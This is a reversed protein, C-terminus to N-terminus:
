KKQAIIILRESNEDDFSSLNIDGFTDIVEFGSKNLLDMFENQCITQVMERFKYEHGGDQFNIYKVIHTGNFVRSIHFDIGEVTKVEEKVLNRIVYNINMFDIILLGKDVLMKNASSLVKNNDSYDEFYGFSTFLNFVVDFKEDQYEERMDHVDFSLTDNEFPKAVAISQKSLDLGTVNLGHKNLFISHRGKGCALDLCESGKPLKLYKLLNSIFLEAETYDRDQYLIHYYHTDFWTEFWEESEKM